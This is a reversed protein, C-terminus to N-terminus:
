LTTKRLVHKRIFRKGNEFPRRIPYLALQRAYGGLGLLTMMRSELERGAPGCQGKKRLWHIQTFLLRPTLRRRLEPHEFYEALLLIQEQLGVANVRNMETQQLAHKRFSYLPENTYVADGQELLHFWMEMDPIQRYEASFGRSAFRRRFMVVSPEGILNRNTELCRTIVELGEQRGTAGLHAAVELVRSQEDIINRAAVALTAGPTEDLLRAMKGLTQSTAFKDDGFLFQVYEGRAQQLCYNWNPVMGLNAPHIHAQIRTDKGAYRRIVVASEDTSCDDVILLEYDQFDQALVSEIAEPLYRAYNYTPVLVSVKPTRSSAVTPSFDPMLFLIHWVSGAFSLV